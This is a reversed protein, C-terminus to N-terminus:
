GVRWGASAGPLNLVLRGAPNERTFSHIDRFKEDQMQQFSPGGNQVIQRVEEKLVRCELSELDETTGNGADVQQAPYHQEAWYRLVAAYCVWHDSNSQLDSLRAAIDENLQTLLKSQLQLYRVVYHDYGLPVSKATMGVETMAYHNNLSTNGHVDTKVVPLVLGLISGLLFARAAVKLQRQEEEGIVVVEGFRGDDKETHLDNTGTRTLKLYEERMTATATCQCLAFGAVESYFAVQHRSNLNVARTQSNAVQRLVASSFERFADGSRITAGLLFRKQQADPEGREIGIFNREWAVWPQSARVAETIVHNRDESHPPYRDQFLQFVDYDQSLGAFRPEMAKMMQGVVGEGDHVREPLDILDIQLAELALRSYEQAEAAVDPVYRAYIRNLDEEGSYLLSQRPDDTPGTYAREQDSLRRQLDVLANQLRGLRFRWGRQDVDSVLARLREGISIAQIRAFRQVAAEYLAVAAAEANALLHQLTINRLGYLSSMGWRDSLERLAYELEGRASKMHEALIGEERRWTALYGFEEQGYRSDLEALVAVAFGIGRHENNILGRVLDGLRTELGKHDMQDKLFHETNERMTRVWEGWVKRDTTKEGDWGRDIKEIEDRLMDSWPTGSRDSGSERALRVATGVREALVNQLFRGGPGATYVADLIQHTAPRTGAANAETIGLAAFFHRDLYDGAGIEADSHRLWYEIVDRALRASCARRVREYPFVIASLGFSFYRRPLKADAVKLLPQADKIIYQMLNDRESRKYTGFDSISFDHFINEAVMNFITESQNAGGIAAGGANIADVLYCIEFPAAAIRQPASSDWQAIFSHEHSRAAQGREGAALAPPSYNYHNLEKLAAYGNAYLRKLNAPGGFVRPLALYGVLNVQQNGGMRAAEQRVLYAMDLFTGSGTGGALSAVIYVNIRAPNANLGHTRAEQVSQLSGVDNLAVHLKARIEDINVFFALRGYARIQGAGQDITTKGSLNPYIWRNLHPYHVLNDLYTSTNQVVLQVSEETRFRLHRAVAQHNQYWPSVHEQQHTDTDLWLYRVVPYQELPGHSSFFRDRVRSLVEAGTGGLGIILTPSMDIFQQLQPDAANPNQVM